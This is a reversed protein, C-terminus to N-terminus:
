KGDANWMDQISKWSGDRQKKWVCLFKGTEHVIKGDQDKYSDEYTGSTFGLDGSKSVEAHLARWSLSFNPDSLFAGWAEKAAAKGVCVPANPPFVLADDAYYSAVGEVDRAHAAKSWAEDLSVLHSAIAGTEWAGAKAPTAPPPSSQCGALLGAALSACVGTLGLSKM